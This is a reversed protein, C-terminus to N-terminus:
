FVCVGPPGRASVGGRRLHRRRILYLLQIGPPGTLQAGGCHLQMTYLQLKGTYHM